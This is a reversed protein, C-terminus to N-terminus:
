PARRRRASGRERAVDGGGEGAGGEYEEAWARGGGREGEENAGWGTDQPGGLKHAIEPLRASPHDGKGNATVVAIVQSYRSMDCQRDKTLAEGMPDRLQGVLDTRQDYIRGERKPVDLMALDVTSRRFFPRHSSCQRAILHTSMGMIERLASM